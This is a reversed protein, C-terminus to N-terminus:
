SVIEVGTTSIKSNYMKRALITERKLEARRKLIQERRGYYVDDPTV